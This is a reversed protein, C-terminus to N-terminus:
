GISSPGPHSGASGAAPALNARAQELSPLGGTGGQGALSLAAAACGLRVADYLGSGDVTARGASDALRAAVTGAFVDGAGTADVIREAPAAPVWRQNQGAVQGADLLVGDAGCTVAVAAAGLRRGRVAADAADETDLLAVTDAPCSPTLLDALPAMRELHARAADPTVLRRRFNPDYIVTGGGGRVVRAALHAADASSPSVAMTIGSVLLVTTEALVRQDLDETSLRSAASGTRLYAFERQGAPDAGVLYAGTPEDGHGILATSVGSDAVYRVLRHGLEDAGVRTLLAVSTGSAAGATAAAAAANLADGSFSLRFVTATELPAAASFELLPEGLVVVDFGHEPEAGTM